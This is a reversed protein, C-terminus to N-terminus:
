ALWLIGAVKSSEFEDEVSAIEQSPLIRRRREPKELRSSVMGGLM